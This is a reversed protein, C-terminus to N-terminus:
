ENNPLDDNTVIITWPKNDDKDQCSIWLEYLKNYGVKKCYPKDLINPNIIM